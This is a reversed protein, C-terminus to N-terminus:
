NGKPASPTCAATRWSPFAGRDKTSASTTATPRRTRLGGRRRFTCRTQYKRGAVRHFLIVKAPPSSRVPTARGVAKEWVGPVPPPGTRWRLDADGNRQPGLIQALRPPRAGVAVVRLAAVCFNRRMPSSIGRRYVAAHDAGARGIAYRPPDRLNPPTPHRSPEPHPSIELLGRRRARPRDHAGALPRPLGQDAPQDSRAPASAPGCPRGVVLASSPRGHDASQFIRGVQPRVKDPGGVPDDASPPMPGIEATEIRHGSRPIPSGSPSARRSQQLQPLRDSKAIGRKHRGASARKISCRRRWSTTGAYSTPRDRTPGVSPRSTRRPM